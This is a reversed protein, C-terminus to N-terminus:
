PIDNDFTLSKNSITALVLSAQLGKFSMHLMEEVYSENFREMSNFADNISIVAKTHVILNLHLSM